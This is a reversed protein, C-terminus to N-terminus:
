LNRQVNNRQIVTKSLETLPAQFPRQSQTDIPAPNRPRLLLLEALALAIAARMTAISNPVHRATRVPPKNVDFVRPFTLNRSHCAPVRDEPPVRERECVLFAYAAISLAAHHHFGRWGRVQYDGAGVEQKLEQYDREIRWRLKANDVLSSFSIGEPLTSFWYKTPEPESKPWEILLWEEKMSKRNRHAPRIRVRAFRSSLPACAGQRWEINEWADEPLKRALKRVQFRFPNTKTSKRKRVSLSNSVATREVWVSTQPHIGAVYTLDMETLDNRLKTSAGYGADMLVVRSPLNKKESLDRLQALAIEPKTRFETTEPIHTKRRHAMDDVTEQLLYLSVAVPLSLEHSVFSLTVATQCNEQKGLQGCYQRAAGASDHGKKPFSTDDIVVAEVGGRREFQPMVIERVKALLDADRWPSDSVFHQMQQHKASTGEPCIREAIREANKRKDLSLLGICYDRLPVARDSRGIVGALEKIYCDFRQIRDDSDLM